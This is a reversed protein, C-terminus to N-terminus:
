RGESRLQEHLSLVEEESIKRGADMRNMAASVGENVDPEDLRNLIDLYESITLREARGMTKLEAKIEALSM